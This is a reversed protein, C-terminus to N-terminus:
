RAVSAPFSPLFDSSIQRGRRSVGSSDTRRIFGSRARNTRASPPWDDIRRDTDTGIWLNGKRDEYLSSIPTSALGPTNYEDYVTFRIGDFRVLGNITGLWLYGDRTQTMSIVSNQPLDNDNEWSDVIYRNSSRLPEGAAMVGPGDILLGLWLLIFTWRHNPM